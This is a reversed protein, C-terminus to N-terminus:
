WFSVSNFDGIFVAVFELDSPKICGEDGVLQLLVQSTGSVKTSLLGTDSLKSGQNM